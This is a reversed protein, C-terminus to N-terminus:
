TSLLAGHREQANLGARIPLTASAVQLPSWQRASGMADGELFRVTVTPWGCIHLCEGRGAPPVHQLQVAAHHLIAPTPSSGKVLNVLKEFSKLTPKAPAVSDRILQYTSVSCVWYFREWSTQCFWKTPTSTSNLTNPDTFLSYDWASFWSVLWTCVQLIRYQIGCGM